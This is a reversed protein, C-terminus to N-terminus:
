ITRILQKSQLVLRTTIAYGRRLKYNSQGLSFVCFLIFFRKNSRQSQIYRRIHFQYTNKTIWYTMGIANQFSTPNENKRFQSNHLYVKAAWDRFWLPKRYIHWDSHLSSLTQIKASCPLDKYRSCYNGFKTHQNERVHKSLVEDPAGNCFWNCLLNIGTRTFTDRSPLATFAIPREWPTPSVAAVSHKPSNPHKWDCVIWRGELSIPRGKRKILLADLFLPRPLRNKEPLPHSQNLVKLFSPTQLSTFKKTPFFYEYNFACCKKWGLKSFLEAEGNYWNPFCQDLIDVLHSIICFIRLITSPFFIVFCVKQM